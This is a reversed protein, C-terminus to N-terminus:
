PDTRKMAAVFTYLERLDDRHAGRSPRGVTSLRDLRQQIERLLKNQAAIFGLNTMTEVILDFSEPDLYVARQTHVSPQRVSLAVTPVSM